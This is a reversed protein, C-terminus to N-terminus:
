IDTKSLEISNIIYNDANDNGESTEQIMDPFFYRANEEDEASIFFIIPNGTSKETAEIMYENM